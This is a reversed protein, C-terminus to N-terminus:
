FVFYGKDLACLQEFAQSDLKKRSFSGRLKQTLVADLTHDNVPREFIQRWVCAFKDLLPLYVQDDVYGLVILFGLQRVVVVNSSFCHVKCNRKQRVNLQCVPERFRKGSLLNNIEANLFQLCISSRGTLLYPRAFFSRSLGRRHPRVFWHSGDTKVLCPVDRGISM